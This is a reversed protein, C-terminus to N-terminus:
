ALNVRGLDVVDGTSMSMAGDTPETRPDKNEIEDYTMTKPAGAAATGREVEVREYRLPLSDAGSLLTIAVPAGSTWGVTPQRVDAESPVRVTGDCAQSAHSPASTAAGHPGDVRVVVDHGACGTGTLTYHVWDGFDVTGNESRRDFRVGADARVIPTVIGMAALVSAALFVWRQGNM